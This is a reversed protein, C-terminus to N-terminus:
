LSHCLDTGGVIPYERFLDAEENRLELAWLDCRGYSKFCNAAEPIFGNNLNTVLISKSFRHEGMECVLSVLANFQNINLDSYTVVRRVCSMADDVTVRPDANKRLLQRGAQNIKV